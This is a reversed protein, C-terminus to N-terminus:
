GQPVHYDEEDDDDDEEDDDDDDEEDDDPWLLVYQRVGGQYPVDEHEGFRQAGANCDISVLPQIVRFPQHRSLSKREQKRPCNKYHIELFLISLHPRTLPIM